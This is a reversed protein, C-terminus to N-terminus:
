KKRIHINHLRLFNETINKVYRLFNMCIDNSVIFDWWVSACTLWYEKKIAHRVLVIDFVNIEYVNKGNRYNLIKGNEGYTVLRM